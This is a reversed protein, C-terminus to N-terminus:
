PFRKSFYWTNQQGCYIRLKYAAQKSPNMHIVSQIPHKSAIFAGMRSVGRYKLYIMM